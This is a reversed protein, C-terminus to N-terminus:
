LRPPAATLVERAAGPTAPTTGLPPVIPRTLAPEPDAAGPPAAVARRDAAEANRRGLAEGLAYFLIFGTLGYLTESFLSLPIFVGIPALLPLLPRRSAVTTGRLVSWILGLMGLGVLLFGIPGLMYLMILYGNDVLAVPPSPNLDSAAGVSGIGAGLPKTLAQPGLTIIAEKRDSGSKDNTGATISSARQVVQQGAQSSGLAFYMGGLMLLVAGLRPLARGGTFFTMLVLGGAVAVWAGRSQTLFIGAIAVVVTLIRLLSVRRSVFLMALYIAVLSAYTYPSNLVSFVRFTGLEKTGVSGFNSKLLWTQDWVPLRPLIGQWIGYISAILVMPLLMQELTFRRDRGNAYGIYIGLIASVYAFLGFLLAFPASFGLPIGVAFGAIVVGVFVNVARPPRYRSLALLAVSATAMFPTLSLVDPGAATPDVVDLVRRLFPAFTWLTFLSVTGIVPWQAFLMAFGPVWVFTALLQWQEAVALVAIGLAWAMVWGSFWLDSMRLARLRQALEPRQILDRLRPIVYLRPMRERLPPKRASTRSRRLTTM